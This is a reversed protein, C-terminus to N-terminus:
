DFRPKNDSDYFQSLDIGKERQEDELLKLRVEIRELTRVLKPVLDKNPDRRKPKPVAPYNLHRQLASFLFMPEKSRNALAIRGEKEGFLLPDPNQLNAQATQQQRQLYHESHVYILDALDVIGIQHRVKLIWRSWTEDYVPDQSIAELGTDYSLRNRAITEFQFFFMSTPPANAARFKAEHELILLALNMDFRGAESEAAAILYTQFPTFYHPLKGMATSMTGVHNLEALLYDIAMPLKTTALIEERLQGLMDQVPDTSTMRQSIARFLYAQEVYEENPLKEM